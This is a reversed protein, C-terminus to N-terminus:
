SANLSNVIDAEIGMDVWKSAFQVLGGASVSTMGHTTTVLTVEDGDSDLGRAIVLADIPSVIGTEEIELSM